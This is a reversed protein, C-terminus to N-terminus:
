INKMFLLSVPLQSISGKKKLEGSLLRFLHRVNQQLVFWWNAGWPKNKCIKRKRWLRHLSLMPLIFEFYSYDGQCCPVPLSSRLAELEPWESDSAKINASCWSPVDVSVIKDSLMPAQTQSLLMLVQKFLSIDTRSFRM